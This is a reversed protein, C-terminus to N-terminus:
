KFSSLFFDINQLDDLFLRFKLSDEPLAKYDKIKKSPILDIKYGIKMWLWEIFATLWMRCEKFKELKYPFNQIIKVTGFKQIDRRRREWDTISRFHASFQWQLWFWVNFNILFIQSFQCYIWAWILMHELTKSLNIEQTWFGLRAWGLWNACACVRFFCIVVLWWSVGAWKCLYHARFKKVMTTRLDPANSGFRIRRQENM